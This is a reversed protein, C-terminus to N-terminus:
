AVFPRVAMRAGSQLADEDLGGQVARYGIGRIIASFAAVLSEPPPMGGLMQELAWAGSPDDMARVLGRLPAYNSGNYIAREIEDYAVLVPQRGGVIAKLLRDVMAEPTFKRTLLQGPNGGMAEREYLQHLATQLLASKTGFIQIVKGLTVGAQKAVARFTVGAHGQEALLGAAAEVIARDTRRIQLAPRDYSRRALARYALRVSDDGLRQARLWLILSAVTEELLARDLPPHWVLLHRAAEGTAFCALADAHEGLGLKAAFRSWFSDLAAQWAADPAYRWAMALHRQGITWEAIASALLSAQVAAPLPQGALPDLQALQAEMWAQADDLAARTAALYLRELSGFHYHISSPAAAAKQVVLRVSVTDAPATCWIEILANVLRLQKPNLDSTRDCQSRNTVHDPNGLLFFRANKPDPSGTTDSDGLNSVITRIRRHIPAIPTDDIDCTVLDKRAAM